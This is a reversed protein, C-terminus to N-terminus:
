QSTVKIITPASGEISLPFGYSAALGSGIYLTPLFTNRAELYGNHARVQDAAAIAMTGSHQLALEIAHQFPLAQAHLKEPLVATLVLMLIAAVFCKPHSFARM